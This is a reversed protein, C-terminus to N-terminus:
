ANKWVKVVEHLFSSNSIHKNKSKYIRFTKEEFGEKFSLSNLDNILSGYNISLNKTKNSLYLVKNKLYKDLDELCSKDNLYNNSFYIGVLTNKKLGYLRTNGTLYKVRNLLIYSAKKKNRYSTYLFNKISLDIRSKIKKIKKDSLSIILNDDERKFSYGLYDFKPSSKGGFNLPGITKDKNIELGLDYNIIREMKEFILDADSESGFTVIVIDDVYRAFYIIREDHMMADDFKKMYLEALYASVGVGRPVGKKNKSYVNYEEFLKKFLIKNKYTLLADNELYNIIKENPISEYFSRIDARIIYKKLNSSLVQKLCSIINKRNGQKVKYARELNLQMQKLTFFESASERDIIYLDKIGNNKKEILSISFSKDAVESSIKELVKKLELERKDIVKKKRINLSEVREEFKIKKIKKDKLDKKYKKYVRNWRKVNNTLSKVKRFEKFSLDLDNGKRKELDYIKRFNEDSFSQDIM